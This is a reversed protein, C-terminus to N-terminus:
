PKTLRDFERETLWEAPAGDVSCRFQKGIQSTFRRTSRRLREPKAMDNDALWTALYTEHRTALSTVVPLPVWTFESDEVLEGMAACLDVIMSQEIGMYRTLVWM